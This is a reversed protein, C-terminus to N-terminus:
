YNQLYCYNYDFSFTLLVFHVPKIATKTQSYILLDKKIIIKTEPTLGSYLLTLYWFM